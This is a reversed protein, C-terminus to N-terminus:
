GRLLNLKVNPSLRIYKLTFSKFINRTVANQVIIQSILLQITFTLYLNYRPTFPNRKFTLNPTSMPYM